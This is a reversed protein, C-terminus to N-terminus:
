EPSHGKCHAYRTQEQHQPVQSPREGWWRSTSLCFFGVECSNIEERDDQIVPTVNLNALTTYARLAVAFEADFETVGFCTELATHRLGLPFARAHGLYPYFPASTVCCPTHNPAHNRRTTARGQSTDPEGGGSSGTRLASSPMLRCLFGDRVPSSRMSSRSSDPLTCLPALNWSPPHIHLPSSSRTHRPVGYVIVFAKETLPTLPPTVVSPSYTVFLCPSVM